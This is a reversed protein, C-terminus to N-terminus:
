PACPDAAPASASAVPGLAARTAEFGLGVSIGDCDKAPDQTGDVLIDSAAELQRAISDILPGACLGPDITGAVKRLVEILTATPLIGAIVGSTGAKHAEDLTMTIIASGLTLTTTTGGLSLQLSLAGGPGSVWVNQVLYSQDFRVRASQPDGPDLLSEPAIPWRDSGDLKPPAGLSSGAYARATLPRYSAGSGLADIAFLLTMQGAALGANLQAQATPAAATLIPLVARGFANDIGREGDVYVDVPLAGRRPRCLDTSAETSLRGDLDYGLKAFSPGTAADGSGGGLWLKTLAFVATGDGDGPRAEGPRPPSAHEVSTTTGAGAGAGGAGLYDTPAGGSGCGLLLCSAALLGVCATPSLPAHM